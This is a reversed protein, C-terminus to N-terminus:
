EDAYVRTSEENTVPSTMEDSLLQVRCRMDGAGIGRVRIRFTADAKPALRPVAEFVIQNGQIAHRTPGEAQLVKMPETVLAALRINTSAKSGQNVVRIEYTTEGGVEIPDDVDAVQFLVAAIGEVDTQEEDRATLGQEASAEILVKQTGSEVALASLTVTGSERAPLEELMWVVRRTRPDYRGSNDAKVFQLGEPLVAALEVNRAPATGPNSVAVQYVAERELFRKRPGEAAVALAPAIIEIPTKVPEAQLNGDAFAVLENLVQGAKTARLVLSVERSEQPALDGVEYELEEGAPHQLGLPIRERLIVGQARGTGPNSIKLHLALDEGILVSRPINAEIHLRPRTVQSRATAETAFAVMAVSGVDGETLPIVQIQVKTEEGAQLTGLKWLLRGSADRGAAPHAGQLQTGRPVEDWVTVQQAATQGVNRVIIELTAPKGVQMEQPAIKRIVLQPAQEGQLPPSGPMGTGAEASSESPRPTPVDVPLPRGQAMRVTPAAPASAPGNPEAAPGSQQTPAAFPDVAIRGPEENGTMSQEPRPITEQNSWPAAPPQPVSRTPGAPYPVESQSPQGAAEIPEPAGAGPVPAPGQNLYASPPQSPGPNQFMSGAPPGSRAAGFPNGTPVPPESAPLSPEPLPTGSQAVVNPQAVANPVTSNPEAPNREQASSGPQGWGLGIKIKLPDRPAPAEGSALAGSSPEAPKPLDSADATTDRQAEAITILGLVVLSSVFTLGVLSRKM